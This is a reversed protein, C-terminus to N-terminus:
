GRTRGSFSHERGRTLCVPGSVWGIRAPNVRMGIDLFRFVPFAIRPDRPIEPAMFSSCRASLWDMLISTLFDEIFLLVKCFPPFFQNVYHYWHYKLVHPAEYLTICFKGIDRHLELLFQLVSDKWKKCLFLANLKLKQLINEVRKDCVTTNNLPLCM